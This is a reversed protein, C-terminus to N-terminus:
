AGLWPIWRRALAHGATLAPPPPALTATLIATAEQATFSRERLKPRKPVRVLVNSAVNTELLREQIAWNLMAKIAGIYKGRVTVPLRPKGRPGPEKLLHDKWDMLSARTLRSADDHGVFAILQVICSRWDQGTTHRSGADIVYADFTALIPVAPGDSLSPALEAPPAPLPPTRVSEGALRALSVDAVRIAAENLERCLASFAAEDNPDAAKSQAALLSRASDAWQEEIADADGNARWERLDPLMWDWGNRTRNAWGPGKAWRHAEDRAIWEIEFVKGLFTITPADLPDYAGSALKRATAVMGDYKAAAEAFRALFEPSQPNTTGMSLKLVSLPQGSAGAPMFPVLAAPFARRYSLRASKPDRQVHQLIFKKRAM